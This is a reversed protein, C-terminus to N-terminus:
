GRRLPVESFVSKRDMESLVGNWVEYTNTPNLALLIGTKGKQLLEKNYQFIEHGNLKDAKGELSTTLYGNFRIGMEDLYSTYRQAKQGAGYIYIESFRRCFIKIERKVRKIKWLRVLESMNMLKVIHPPLKVMLWVVVGPMNTLRHWEKKYQRYIDETLIGALRLNIFNSYVLIQSNVGGKKIVAKKNRYEKPLKRIMCPWCYCWVYFTNKYWGSQEKLSSAIFDTLSVNFHIAKWQPVRLLKEFYFAVHSHNISDPVCYEKELANWEVDQLMVSTKLIVAGYLTMHWACDEFLKNYDKYERVGIKEVDRYNPIILDYGQEMYSVIETLANDKWRISDSCVWLYDYKGNRGFEKFIGYVKMNSHVTSDVRVYYLSRNERMFDRVVDETAKGESSDYIYIDMGHKWYCPAYVDLFERVM